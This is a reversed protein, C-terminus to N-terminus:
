KSGFHEALHEIVRELRASRSAKVLIVDGPRVRERLEPGAQEAGASIVVERLGAGRAAEAMLGAHRGVSVLLDVREEAARRGIEEHAPATAGGLEAMDGLVAIRRGACPFGRLTQLAANMSDANANYADDLVLFDDISRLQLRMKAGACAELGASIEERSLGFEAGVAVAYAANLAQHSGLLKISYRGSYRDNPAKLLFHTGNRDFHANTIQWDNGPGFGATAVRARTRARLEKIGHTEGGLVLLGDAPLVEALQGEERLVGELDGFFELHERGISTLVGIEPRIMELLPRLEGPHNTGAEFVGARHEPGIELLTLPVGVDNNFSGASWVTPTRQRLVSALLEKTTTKGNSGAVAVARLSFDRRYRAGIQGLAARTDRVAICPLGAARDAQLVAGIAGREITERAFDHGDFKEGAIALFLDGSRAARSDTCIRSAATSPDLGQIAGGCAEALYQITRPEM